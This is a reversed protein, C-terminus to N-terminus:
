GGVRDVDVKEVSGCVSIVTVGELLLEMQDLVSPSCLIAAIM